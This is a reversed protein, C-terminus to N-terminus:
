TQWAVMVGLIQGTVWSNKPDLFWCVASSVDEPEGIRGLPHMSVSAKEALESILTGCGFADSCARTSCNFRIRARAYTSAASLTLGVVGAKAAAIAEHNALGVRAAASSLLVM